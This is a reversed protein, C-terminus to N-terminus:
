RDAESVDACAGSINPEAIGNGRADMRSLAVLARRVFDRLEGATTDIHAHGFVATAYGCRDGGQRVYVETLGGLDGDVKTHGGPIHVSWGTM